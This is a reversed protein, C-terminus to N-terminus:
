VWWSQPYRGELSELMVDVGPEESYVKELTARVVQCDDQLIGPRVIFGHKRKPALGDLIAKWCNDVDPRTDKWPSRANQPRSFRLRVWMGIPGSLPVEVQANHVANEALLAVTAEFAATAAPTFFVRKGSRTKKGIRAREWAVPEGPITFAIRM